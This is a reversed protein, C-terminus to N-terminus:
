RSAERLRTEVDTFFGRARQALSQNVERAYRAQEDLLRRHLTMTAKAEEYRVTDTIGQLYGLWLESTGRYPEMQLTLGDWICDQVADKPSGRYWSITERLKKTPMTRYNPAFQEVRARAETHLRLPVFGPKFLVLLPSRHALEALPPRVKPGWGPIHFQGQADTVAETIHIRPRASVQRLEWLAVVVVGELPEGTEENVVTARIDKASYSPPPFADARHMQTLTVLALAVLLGQRARCRWSRGSAM